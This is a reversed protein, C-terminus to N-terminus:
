DKYVNVGRSALKRVEPIRLRLSTYISPRGLGKVTTFSFITAAIMPLTLDWCATMELILLIGTLPAQITSAFFAAMGVACFALPNLEVGILSAMWCFVHGLIGGMLLLPSFLGGPVGTSYCLPAFFWRVIGILLVIYIPYHNNLMQQGLSDGGAAWNPAYWLLVAVVLGVLFAWIEPKVAPIKEQVGVFFLVTKNYFDGMVGVLIGFLSYAILTKANVLEFNKINVLYDPLPGLINMSVVCGILTCLLTALVLRGKLEKTVEELTFMTGGLPASFAVGLGSGAAAMILIKADNLPLKVLRGFWAGAAAGMQVTPGERGLAMGSGLSLLGGVFKVWIVNARSPSVENKWLAEVYQIGSGGARPSFRVLWRSVVACACCVLAVLLFGRVPGFEAAWRIFEVRLVDAKHLFVQFYGGILGVFVGVLPCLLFLKWKPSYTSIGIRNFM